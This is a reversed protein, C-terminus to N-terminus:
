FAFRNPQNKKDFVKNVTPEISEEKVITFNSKLDEKEVRMQKLSDITLIWRDRNFRDFYDFSVFCYGNDCWRHGFPFRVIWHNERYGVIIINIMGLCVDDKSPMVLYNDTLDLISSFITLNSLILNNQYLAKKMVMEDKAVYYYKMDFLPTLKDFPLDMKEEVIGNERLLSLASEISYFYKHNMLPYLEKLNKAELNNQQINYLRIISLYYIHESNCMWQLNFKTYLINYLYISIMGSSYIFPDKYKLFPAIDVTYRLDLFPPPYNDEDNIWLQYNHNPTDPIVNCISALQQKKEVNESSTNGM